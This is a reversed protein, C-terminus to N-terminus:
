GVTRNGCVEAFTRITKLLSRRDNEHDMITSGIFVGDSGADRAMIVDEPTRLGVGTYIPRHSGIRERLFGICEGLTSFRLEDIGPAPRAQLYVFGNSNEADRVEDPNLHFQVYCSVNLGEAILREKVHPLRGGICSVDRLNEKKCFGIFRELGIESITSEYVLLIISIGKINRKIAAINELYGDWSRCANLAHRMRATIREGELYPDDTPLDIQLTDLGGERYLEANAYSQEFSPYGNSLYGILRM